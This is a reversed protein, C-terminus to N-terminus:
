LVQRKVEIIRFVHTNRGGKHGMSCWLFPKKAFQRSLFHTFSRKATTIAQTRYKLNLFCRVCLAISGIAGSCRHYVGNTLKGFEAAIEHMKPWDQLVTISQLPFTFMKLIWKITEHFVNFM